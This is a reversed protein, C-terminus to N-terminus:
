EGGRRADAGAAAVSAGHAHGEGLGEDELDDAFFWFHWTFHGLCEPLFKAADAVVALGDGVHHAVEDAEGLFADAFADDSELGMFVGSM